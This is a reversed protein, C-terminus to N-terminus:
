FAGCGWARLRKWPSLVEESARRPEVEVRQRFDVGVHLESAAVELRRLDSKSLQLEIQLQPVPDRHDVRGSLARKALPLRHGELGVGSGFVAELIRLAAVGEVDTQTGALTVRGRPTRDVVREVKGPDIDIDGHM